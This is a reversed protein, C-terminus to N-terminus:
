KLVASVATLSIYHYHPRSYNAVATTTDRGVNKRNAQKNTKPSALLIFNKILVM